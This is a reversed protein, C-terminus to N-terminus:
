PHLTVVTGQHECMCSSPWSGLAQQLDQTVSFLTPVRCSPLGLVLLHNGQVKGTFCAGHGLKEEQGYARWLEQM